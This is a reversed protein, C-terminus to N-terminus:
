SPDNEKEKFIMKNRSKIFVNLDKEIEKDLIAIIRDKCEKEIDDIGDLYGKKYGFHHSAMGFCVLSLIGLVIM